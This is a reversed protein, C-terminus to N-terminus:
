RRLNNVIGLIEDSAQIVKSSAEYGRQAVMLALLEDSLQVNSSEIFGQALTGLGEEGPKGLKAEGSNETPVFVTGGLPRLAAPNNFHAIELQAM